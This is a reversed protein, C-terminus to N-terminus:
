EPDQNIGKKRFLALLPKLTFIKRKGDVLTQNGCPSITHLGEPYQNGHLPPTIRLHIHESFGETDLRTIEMLHIGSGYGLSSDQAPRYLKGNSYFFNGAPRATCIDTKVPNHPHPTWTGHFDDSYFIYLKLDANNHQKRTAFIWWKGDNQILTADVADFDNLLTHSYQLKGEKIKYAILKGTAAQEPICYRENHVEVIFPYSLHHKAEPLLQATTESLIELLGKNEQEDFREYLIVPKGEHSYGFPDAKFGTGSVEKMWQIPPLQHVEAVTEIPAPIIGINWKYRYFLGNIRHNIKSLITPTTIPAFTRPLLEPVSINAKSPGNGGYKRIGEIFLAIFQAHLLQITKTASYPLCRFRGQNLLEGNSLTLTLTFTGNGTRYLNKPEFYVSHSDIDNITVGVIPITFASPLRNGSLHLLFTFPKDPNKNELLEDITQSFSIGAAPSWGSPSKETSPLAPKPSPNGNNRIFSIECHFAKRCEIALESVWQPVQHDSLLIGIQMMRPRVSRDAFRIRRESIAM